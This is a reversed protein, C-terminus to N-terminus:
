NFISSLQWIFWALLLILVSLILTNRLRFGIKHQRINLYNGIKITMKNLWKGIQKGVNFAFHEEQKGEKKLLLRM